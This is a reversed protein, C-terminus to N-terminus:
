VLEDIKNLQNELKKGAEPNVMKIYNIKGQMSSRFRGLSCVNKGKGGKEMRAWKEIEELPNKYRCNFLIARIKKLDNRAINPKQNVVIGAVKQRGGNRLVRLKSENLEFGEEQIIKRFFPITHVATDYNSSITMDDAYRSYHYNLNIGLRSLRRDLKTCLINSIAPSTPAGTPLKGQHTVLRAMLRSLRRPYGLATFLGSVREFTISPFFDKIDMKIVIKKGVHREANTLISRKKRFGEAHDNLQIKVLIRDLFSRQIKKLRFKPALIIRKGGTNKRIEFSHYHAQTNGSLWNLQNVSTDLTHALHIKSILCTLGRSEMANFYASLFYLIRPDLHSNKQLLDNLKLHDVTEPYFLIDKNHYLRLAAYAEILDIIEPDVHAQKNIHRLNEM